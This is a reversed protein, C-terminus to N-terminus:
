GIRRRNVSCRGPGAAGLLLQGGTLGANKFFAIGMEPDAWFPHFLITTPVLFLVLALVGLRTRFGLLLSIGGALLALLALAAAVQPLPLGKGEVMSTFDEFAMLHHSGAMLFVASLFARGLLLLLDNM